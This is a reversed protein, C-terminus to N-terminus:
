AADRFLANRIYFFRNYFGDLLRVLNAWILELYKEQEDAGEAAMASQHAM